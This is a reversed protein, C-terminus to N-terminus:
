KIVSWGRKEAEVDGRGKYHDANKFMLRPGTDVGQIGGANNTNSAEFIKSIDNHILFEDVEKSTIPHYQYEKNSDSKSRAKNVRKKIKKMGEKDPYGMAIEEVEDKKIIRFKLAPRGNILLDGKENFDISKVVVKKNKFRGMLVTDGVEIPLDVNENVDETALRLLQSLM